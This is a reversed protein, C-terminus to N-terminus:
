GDGSTTISAAPAFIVIPEKRGALPEHGIERWSAHDSSGEVAAGSALIMEGYRKTAQELRSAVNVADGLVTFEMREEDGVIGCFVEGVHIGIGIRVTHPLERTANWAEVIRVLDHAFALARAADDGGEDPVGFLILAGDGIFKDVFGRHTRVCGLIRTRFATFFQSLREPDMGEAMGTSDRIDVFVIVARQRRGRRLDADGAAVRPAIEAPLFRSLSARGVADKVASSLLRRSRIIGFATAAGALLILELRMVNIPMSFLRRWAPVGTGATDLVLRHDLGIAIAILGLALLAIASLQVRVDYRLAGVALVLPVAWVIPASPLANGPLEREGIALFAIVLVLGVDLVMFLYAFGHHWRQPEALVISAAGILLFGLSAIWANREFSDLSVDVLHRLVHDAAIVTVFICIGIAVRLWGILREAAVEHRSMLAAVLNGELPRSPISIFPEAEQPTDDARLDPRM